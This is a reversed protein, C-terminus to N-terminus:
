QIELNKQTTLIQPYRQMLRDWWAPVALGEESIYKVGDLTCIASRLSFDIGEIPLLASSKTNMWILDLDARAFSKVLVDLLFETTLPVDPRTKALGGGLAKSSIVIGRFDLKLFEKKSLGLETLVSQPATTLWGLSKDVQDFAGDIDEAIRSYDKRWRAPAPSKLQCCWAIRQKPSFAIADLDTKEGNFVVKDFPGYIRVDTGTFVKRLRQLQLDEKHKKMETHVKQKFLDTLRYLDQEGTSTILVRNLLLLRCGIPLFPPLPAKDPRTYRNGDYIIDELVAAIRDFRIGTIRALIRVWEYHDFCLSASALYERAHTRQFRKTMWGNFFVIAVLCLWIERFDQLKYKAPIQISGFFHTSDYIQRLFDMIARITEFNRKYYIRSGICSVQGACIKAIGELVKIPQFDNWYVDRSHYDLVHIQKNGSHVKFLLNGDNDREAEAHGALCMLLHDYIYAYKSIKSLLSITQQNRRQDPVHARGCTCQACNKWAMWVGFALIDASTVSESAEYDDLEGIRYGASRDVEEVFAAMQVFADDRCGQFLPEGEIAMKLTDNVALIQKKDLLLEIM